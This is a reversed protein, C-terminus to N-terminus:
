HIGNVTKQGEKVRREFVVKRHENAETSVNRIQIGVM